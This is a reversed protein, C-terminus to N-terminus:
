IFKTLQGAKYLENYLTLDTVSDFELWSNNIPVGKVEYELDILHQIFDTIFMNRTKESTIGLNSYVTRFTRAFSRSIKFLGIYQGQIEEISTAKKGLESIQRTTRDWIFTEADSLIDESRMEWYEKWNLDTLVSLQDKSLMLRDFVEKKFIIDGYAVIIDKTGDFIDFTQSLSYMMNTSSFEANIFKKIEIVNSHVSEECHGTVVNIHSFGCDKYVLAQYDLLTQNNFNIMCKPNHETFPMLRKGLGAALVIIETNNIDYM